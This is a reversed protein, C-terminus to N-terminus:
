EVSSWNLKKRDGTFNHIPPNSCIVRGHTISTQSKTLWIQACYCTVTQVYHKNARFSSNMMAKNMSESDNCFSTDNAYYRKEKRCHSCKRWNPYCVYQNVRWEYSRLSFSRLGTCYVGETKKTKTDQWVYTEKEGKSCALRYLEDVRRNVFGNMWPILWAAM